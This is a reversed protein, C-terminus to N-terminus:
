DDKKKRRSVGFIIIALAVGGLSIWLWWIKGAEKIQMYAVIEEATKESTSIMKSFASFLEEENYGLRDSNSLLYEIIEEPNKDQLIGPELNELARKLNPGAFESIGKIYEEASDGPDASMAAILSVLLEKEAGDEMAVSYLAELWEGANKIQRENTKQIAEKILKSGNTSSVENIVQGMRDIHEAERVHLAELSDLTKQQTVPEQPSLEAVVPESIEPEIRTPEGALFNYEEISINNFRDKITFKLSNDGTLVETEYVFNPDNIFYEGTKVLKDNQWHEIILTSRPEIELEIRATDGPSYIISDMRVPIFIEAAYDAKVLEESPLTVSDGPHTLALNVDKEIKRSGESEYVLKYDGHPVEFEYKGTQPNSYVTVLTDLEPKVLASVKVSDEYQSLLDKLRVIGRVSFERPNKDSFVEVRFIDKKGYGDSDFKSLYALYGEGVPSYFLDDDTTNLPYGMNVPTSWKNNDLKTSYFIDHGGMSFHGRSSFFLVKGTSDLFPTEENFPTNIAPGLNVAPGWEGLSDKQSVYIDLGGYTGKRNSTFYLKTGDSSVCAHSEWYKTNINENLKVAPSWRGNAFNSVYINGDYGDDKYIYLENGDPSLSSTYGDDILLEPQIQIVPSWSADSKRSYFIGEYFPLERTFVITKEDASVVPNVDSRQDNIYEGQNELKLYLPRNMLIKANQCAEIQSKVVTSDYIKYDMGEYFLRYTDIAKDLQNSIRYATGLYFLADYPAETESFRGEKYTPNIHKVADELYPLAKEKEGPVNLYCVGVRYKYNYNDPYQELLNLYISLADQFEEFLMWSEAEIFMEKIERRNQATTITSNILLVILLIKFAQRNM